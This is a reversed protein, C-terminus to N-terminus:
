AAMDSRPLITGNGAKLGNRKREEYAAALGMWLLTRIAESRSLHEAEGSRTRMRCAAFASRPGWRQARWAAVDHLARGQLQVFMLSDPSMTNRCAQSRRSARRKLSSAAGPGIRRARPMSSGSRLEFGVPLRSPSLPSRDPSSNRVGVKWPVELPQLGFVAFPCM